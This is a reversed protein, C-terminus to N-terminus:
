LSLQLKDFVYRLSFSAGCHRCKGRLIFYSLVPINDWPRVKAQCSFCHSGPRVVSMELPWRAIVVNAFSGWAAGFLGSFILIQWQPIFTLVESM